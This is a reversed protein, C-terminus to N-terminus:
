LNHNPMVKFREIIEAARAVGGCGMISQQVRKAQVLYSETELVKKMKEVLNTETLSTLSIVEGAGSWVLRAAIAPQEYTIPVAVLPVGHSLSDLVTNLGCPNITVRARALLEYQPAYPVVIPDGPLNSTAERALAGGHSIVLQVPFNTCAAAFTKFIELKSGQMSGLSAYVLPRGDLRDWPFPIKLWRDRLPGVYHFGPPLSTRPFDFAPPQQSIQALPSFCDQPNKYQPLGWLQRYENVVRTIPQVALRSM